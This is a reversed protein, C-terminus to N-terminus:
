LTLDEYFMSGLYMCKLVSDWNIYCLVWILFIGRTNNIFFDIATKFM